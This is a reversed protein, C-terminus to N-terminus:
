LEINSIFKNREADYQLTTLTEWHPDRKPVYEKKTYFIAELVFEYEKKNVDEDSMGSILDECMQRLVKYCDPAKASHIRQMVQSAQYAKDMKLLKIIDMKESGEGFVAIATFKAMIQGQKPGHQRVDFFYNGFNSEDIIIGGEDKVVETEM